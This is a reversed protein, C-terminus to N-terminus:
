PVFESVLQVSYSHVYTLVCLRNGDLGLTFVDSPNVCEGREPIVQNRTKNQEDDSNQLPRCLARNVTYCYARYQLRACRWVQRRPSEGSGSKVSAISLECLQCSLSCGVLSMLASCPARGGGGKM